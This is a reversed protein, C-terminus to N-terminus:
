CIGPNTTIRIPKVARSMFYALSVGEDTIHSMHVRSNQRVQSQREHPAYM